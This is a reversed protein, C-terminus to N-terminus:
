EVKTIEFYGRHDKMGVEFGKEFKCYYGSIWILGEKRYDDSAAFRRDSSLLETDRIFYRLAESTGFVRSTHVYIEKNEPDYSLWHDDQKGIFSKGDFENKTVEFPTTAVKVLNFRDGNRKLTFESGKLFTPNGDSNKMEKLTKEFEATPRVTISFPYKTDEDTFNEFLKLYKLSKM